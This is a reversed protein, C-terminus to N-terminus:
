ATAARTRRRLGFAGIVGIGAVFLPLVAPAPVPTVTTGDSVRIDFTDFANRRLITSGITSTGVYNVVLSIFSIDSLSFTEGPSLESFLDGILGFAEVGPNLRVELQISDVDIGPVGTPGFSGVYASLFSDVGGSLPVQIVRNATPSPGSKIAAGNVQFDIDSYVNNFLGGSAFVAGSTDFQVSGGFAGSGPLGPNTTTNGSFSIDVIAAHAVGAHLFAALAACVLRWM